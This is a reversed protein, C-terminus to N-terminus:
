LELYFTGLRTHILIDTRVIASCIKTSVVISVMTGGAQLIKRVTVMIVFPPAVGGRFGTIPYVERDRLLTSYSPSKYFKTTIINLAM